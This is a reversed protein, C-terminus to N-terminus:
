ERTMKLSKIVSRPVKNKIFMRINDEKQKLLDPTDGHEPMNSNVMEEIEGGGVNTGQLASGIDGVLRSRLADYDRNTPNDSVPQFFMNHMAGGVVPISSVPDHRRMYGMTGGKVADKSMQSHIGHLQSLLRDATQAQTYQQNLMPIKDEQGTAKLQAPAQFKFIRDANPSLISGSAEDNKSAPQEDGPQPPANQGPAPNGQLKGSQDIFPVSPAPAEQVGPAPTQGPNTTELGANQSASKLLQDNELAKGASYQDALAKAQPTALQNAVEQVKNDYIKNMTAKTLASATNGEGYTDKYMGYVTKQQDSRAKQADIDRDIQKNLFDQAPNGRGNMGNGFGGLLLGIATTAKKGSDMSELYHNPNILGSKIAQAAEDSHTNFNNYRDQDQQAQAALQDNYGKQIVAMEAGKASDVAQQERGSKQQLNYAAPANLTGNPNLTQPIAPTQPVQANVPQQNFVSATNPPPQVPASDDSTAAGDQTGDAYMKLAKSQGTPVPNRVKSQQLKPNNGLSNDQHKVLGGEKYSQIGQNMNATNQERTKKYQDDRSPSADPTPAPAPTNFAKQFSTALDAMGGDAMKEIPLKELQKRQLTPLKAHSIILQHGDKHQFTSSDKDGSIKKMSSINLGKM